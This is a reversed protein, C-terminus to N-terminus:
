FSLLTEIHRNISGQNGQLESHSSGTGLSVSLEETKVEPTTPNFGEAVVGLVLDGCM